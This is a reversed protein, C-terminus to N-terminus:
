HMSKADKKHLPVITKESKLKSFDDFFKSYSSVSTDIFKQHSSLPDNIIKRIRDKKDQRFSVATPATNEENIFSANNKIDTTKFMDLYDEHRKTTSLAAKRRKQNLFPLFPQIEYQTNPLQQDPFNAGETVTNFNRLNLVKDSVKTSRGLSKNPSITDSQYRSNALIENNSRILKAFKSGKFFNSELGDDQDGM